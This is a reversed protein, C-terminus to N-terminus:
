NWKGCWLYPDVKGSLVACSVVGAVTANIAATPGGSQAVLCIECIIKRWRNGSSELLKEVFDSESRGMAYWIKKRGYVRNQTEPFLRYVKM